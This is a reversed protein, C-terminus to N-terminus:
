EEVTEIAGPISHCSAAREKRLIERTVDLLTPASIDASEHPLQADRLVHATKCGVKRGVVIDSASDGIMWSSKLDIDHDRAAQLLMGPAPKRCSCPPSIDHPCYYFADVIAGSMALAARLKEHNAELDQIRLQGKAVCRQNTVLIVRFGARNLLWIAEAVGPIIQMQEWRTVYGPEAVKHNIVGDRDLFAARTM